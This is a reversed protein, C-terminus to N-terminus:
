IILSINRVGEGILVYRQRNFEDKIIVYGWSSTMLGLSERSIESRADVELVIIGDEALFDKAQKLLKRILELGDEGGDLALDPEYYKVSKDLIILLQSPIYPLNATIVHYKKQALGKLLDSQIVRFKNLDSKSILKEINSHATDVCASSVDVFDVTNAIYGNKKLELFLAIGICGTGCGVDLISLTEFFGKKTICQYAVEVLGESEIRPILVGEDVIFESGMFECFGTIYEVPKDEYKNFDELSINYKLLQNKEYATWCRKSKM